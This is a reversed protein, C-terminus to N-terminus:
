DIYEYTWSALSGDFWQMTAAVPKDDSYTYNMELPRPAGVYWELQTMNNKSWLIQPHFFQNYGPMFTLSGFIVGRPRLTNDYEVTQYSRGNDSYSIYKLNDNEWGFHFQNLTTEVIDGRLETNQIDHIQGDNAYIYTKTTSSVWRWETALLGDIYTYEFRELMNGDIDNIIISSCMNNNYSLTAISHLLTTDGTTGDSNQHWRQEVMDVTTLREGEWTFTCVVHDEQGEMNTNDYSYNYTIRSLKPGEEAHTPATTSYAFGNYTGTKPDYTVTVTMGADEMRAMWQKIEERSTTSITTSEKTRLSKTHPKNSRFTVAKGHQAYNCFNDLLADLESNSNIYVTIPTSPSDSAVVYTISQEDQTIEDRECATLAFAATLLVMLKVTTKM